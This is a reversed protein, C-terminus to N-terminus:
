LPEVSLATVRQLVARVLEAYDGLTMSVSPPPSTPKLEPELLAADFIMYVLIPWSDYKSRM